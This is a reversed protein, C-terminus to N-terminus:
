KKYLSKKKILVKPKILGSYDKHLKNLKIVISKNSIGSRHKTRLKNIPVPQIIGSKAENLAKFDYKFIGNEDEHELSTITKVRCLNLKPNYRTILVYHGSNPKRRIKLDKNRVWYVKNPNIFKM